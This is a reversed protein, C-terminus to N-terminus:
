SGSKPSKVAEGPMIAGHQKSAIMNMMRCSRIACVFVDVVTFFM